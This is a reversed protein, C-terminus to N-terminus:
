MRIATMVRNTVKKIAILIFREPEKQRRRKAKHIKESYSITYNIHLKM